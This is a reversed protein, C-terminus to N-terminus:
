LSLLLSPLPAFPLNFNFFKLLFQESIFHLGEFFTPLKWEPEPFIVRGGNCLAILSCNFLSLLFLFFFFHFFFFFFTGSFVDSRGAVHDLPLYGYMIVNKFPFFQLLQNGWQKESFRVGKPTGPFPNNNNLM